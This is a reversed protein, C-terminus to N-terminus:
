MIFVLSLPLVSIDILPIGGTLVSLRPRLHILQIFVSCVVKFLFSYVFNTNTPTVALATIGCIAVGAIILCLICVANASLIFLVLYDKYVQDPM